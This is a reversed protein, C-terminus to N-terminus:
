GGGVLRQRLHIVLLDCAPELLDLVHEFGQVAGYYPDPVERVDDTRPAVELLLRVREYLGAPCRRRLQALNDEDMALLLDFRDFDADQLRSARIGSLDYGRRAAVAVAREDPPSGREGHTGASAVRVRRELGAHVLKTRLVAEAMPSRCINGMCVMLVGTEFAPPARFRDLLSM